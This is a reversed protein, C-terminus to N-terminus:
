ILVSDRKAIMQVFSFPASWRTLSRLDVIQLYAPGSVSDLKPVNRHSFTWRNATGDYTVPCSWFRRHYRADLLELRFRRLGPGFDDPCLPPPAMRLSLALLEEKIPLHSLRFETLLRDIQNFFLKTEM